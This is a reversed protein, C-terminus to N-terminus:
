GLSAKIRELSKIILYGIKEKVIIEIETSLNEYKQKFYNFKAGVTAIFTVIAASYPLLATPNFIAGLIGWQITFIAMMIYLFLFFSIGIYFNIMIFRRAFSYMIVYKGNNYFGTLYYSFIELYAFFLYVLIYAHIYLVIEVNPVNEWWPDMRNISFFDKITLTKAFM